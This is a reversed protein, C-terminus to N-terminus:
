RRVCTTCMDSRGAAVHLHAAALRRAVQQLEHMRLQPGIQAGRQVLGGALAGRTSTRPMTTCADLVAVARTSM